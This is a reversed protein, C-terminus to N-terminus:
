QWSFGLDQENGHECYGKGLWIVRTWVRGVLKELIWKLTMWRHRPRGFPIKGEHYRVMIKYVNIMKGHM